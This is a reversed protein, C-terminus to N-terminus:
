PVQITMVMNVPDGKQSRDQTVHLWDVDKWGKGRLDMRINNGM